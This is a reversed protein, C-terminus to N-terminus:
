RLSNRVQHVVCIQTVTDPFVGKISETFGNLIYTSANLIDKVGRARLNTLVNMWFSASENESIWMGLVQKM